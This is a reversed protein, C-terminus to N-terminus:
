KRFPKKQTFERVAQRVVSNPTVKQGIEAAMEEAKKIAEAWEPIYITRYHPSRKQPVKITNKM